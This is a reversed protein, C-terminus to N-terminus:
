ELKRYITERFIVKKEWLALSFIFLGEAFLLAFGLYLRNTIFIFSMMMCLLAYIFNMRMLFRFYKLNQTQSFYLIVGYLAYTFNAILQIFVVVRPLSFNKIIFDFFGYYILTGLLGCIFDIMLLKRISIM